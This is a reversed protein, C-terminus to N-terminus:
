MEEYPFPDYDDTIDPANDVESTFDEPSHPYENQFGSSGDSPKKKETFYFDNVKVEVAQRNKGDQDQWSRQRLEGDVCVQMGKKCYQAIIDSVKEWANCNFFYTQDDKYGNVAISFTTVNKGSPLQKTEPDRTLRGILTVRNLNKAM